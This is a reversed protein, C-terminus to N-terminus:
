NLNINDVQNIFIAVKTVANKVNDITTKNSKSVADYSEDDSVSVNDTEYSTFDAYLKFENDTPISDKSYKVLQFEGLKFDNYDYDNNAKMSNGWAGNPAYSIKAITFQDNYDDEKGYFMISLAKFKKKSKVESVVKQSITLIDDKSVDRKSLVVKYQYRPINKNISQDSVAVIKYDLPNSIADKKKDSNTKNQTSNSQDNKTNSKSKNDNNVTTKTCGVFLTLILLMSLIVYVIKKMIKM